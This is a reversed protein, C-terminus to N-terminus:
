KLHLDNLGLSSNPDEELFNEFDIIIKKQKPLHRKYAVGVADLM